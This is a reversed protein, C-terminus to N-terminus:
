DPVFIEKGNGRIGREKGNPLPIGRQDPTIPQRLLYAAPLQIEFQLPAM